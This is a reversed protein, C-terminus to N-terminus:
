ATLIYSSSRPKGRRQYIQERRRRATGDISKKGRRGCVIGIVIGRDLVILHIRDRDFSQTYRYGRLQLVSM